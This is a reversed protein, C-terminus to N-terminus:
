KLGYSNSLQNWYAATTMNDFRFQESHGPHEDGFNYPAGHLNISPTESFRDAISTEAGLALSYSQACMAFIEYTNTGFFLNRPSQFARAEFYGSPDSPTPGNYFYPVQPKQGQDGVWLNLAWDVQNYYDVFFAAGGIGNFYPPAGNTYYHGETDPTKVAYGELAYLNTADAPITNDYARASVAAQSAVYTNVIEGAGEQTALRLAEGVVVNGMSHAMVYVNSPYKNNLGALFTELPQGSEWAV